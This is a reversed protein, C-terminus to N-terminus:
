KIYFYYGSQAAEVKSDFVQVKNVRNGTPVEDSYAYYKQLEGGVEITFGIVPEKVKVESGGIGFSQLKTSSSSMDFDDIYALVTTNLIPNTSHITTFDYPIYIEGRPDNTYKIIQDNLVDSIITNVLEKQDNSNMPPNNDKYIDGSPTVKLANKFGLNYSYLTSGGAPDVVTQIYPMKPSLKTQILGSDEVKYRDAVYYGDYAAVVFVPCYEFLIEQKNKESIPVDYNKCIISSFTNLAISPEVSFKSVDEYDQGLDISDSSMEQAAADTAYNIVIKLRKEEFRNNYDKAYDTFLLNMSIIQLLILGGFMLSSLSM